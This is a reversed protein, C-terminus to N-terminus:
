LKGPEFLFGSAGVWRSGRPLSIRGARNNDAGVKVGALPKDRRWPKRRRFRCAPNFQHLLHAFQSKEEHTRDAILSDIRAECSTCRMECNVSPRSIASV